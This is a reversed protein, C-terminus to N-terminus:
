KQLWNKSDAKEERIWILFSALTTTIIDVESCTYRL